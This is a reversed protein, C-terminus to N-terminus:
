EEEVDEETEERTSKTNKKGNDEACNEDRSQISSDVHMTKFLKVFTYPSTYVVAEDDINLSNSPCLM